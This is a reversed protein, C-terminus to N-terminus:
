LQIFFLIPQPHFSNWTKHACVDVCSTPPKAFIMSFYKAMNMWRLSTRLRAYIYMSLAWTMTTVMNRAVALAFSLSLSPSLSLQYCLFSLSFCLYSSLTSLILCLIFSSRTTHAMYFIHEFISCRHEGFSPFVYMHFLGIYGMYIIKGSFLVMEVVVVVIIIVVVVVVILVTFSSLLHLFWECKRQITFEVWFLCKRFWFGNVASINRFNNDIFVLTFAINFMCLWFLSLPSSSSITLSFPVCVNEKSRCKLKSAGNM